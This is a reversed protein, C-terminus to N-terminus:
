CLLHKQATPFLCAMSYDHGDATNIFTHQAHANDFHATVSHQLCIPLTM